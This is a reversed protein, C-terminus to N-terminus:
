VEDPSPTLLRKFATEITAAAPGAGLGTLLGIGQQVAFLLTGLEDPDIPDNPAQHQRVLETFDTRGRMVREDLQAALEEDRIATTIFELSALLYGRALEQAEDATREGRAVDEAFAEYPSRGDTIAQDLTRDLVALYLGAKNAFNSYIAGKTYGAAAAIDDLTAANYGDRAFIADAADILATRTRQQQESRTLPPQHASMPVLM